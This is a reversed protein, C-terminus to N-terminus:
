RVTVRRALGGSGREPRIITCPLPFTRGDLLLEKEERAWPVSVEFTKLGTVMGLPELLRDELKKGVESAPWIIRVRLSQLKPMSALIRWIREWRQPDSKPMSENFLHSMAFRFDLQISHISDFRQPLVSCSFAILTELSDFDFTPASYLIQIAETYIKRCTELLPFIGEDGTGGFVGRETKWGRCGVEWCESPWGAGESDPICKCRKFALKDQKRRVIHFVPSDCFFVQEYILLRIEKPLRFLISQVQETDEETEILESL